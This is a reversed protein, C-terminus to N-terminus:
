AYKQWYRWKPLDCLLIEYLEPILAGPCDFQYGYLHRFLFFIKKRSPDGRKIQQGFFVAVEEISTRKEFDM